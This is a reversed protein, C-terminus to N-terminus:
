IRVDRNITMDGGLRTATHTHTRAHAYVRAQVRAHEQMSMCVLYMKKKGNPIMGHTCLTNHRKGGLMEFVHEHRTRLFTIMDQM